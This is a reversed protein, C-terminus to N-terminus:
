IRNNRIRKSDVRKIERMITDAIKNADSESKVNVQLNYNYVSGERYTGRNIKELKEAGFDRVAPRRIVFEGPTLMAPITDSGLSPFVPNPFQKMKNAVAGGMSRYPILGGMPRYTILGGNARNRKPKWDVWGAERKERTNLGKKKKPPPPAPPPPPPPPPPAPKKPPPPAAPVPLPKMDPKEKGYMELLGDIMGVAVAMDEMFKWSSTRALDIQNEIAEWQEKTKGLVELTKIEDELRLEALRVFEAAPRLREQEIRFVEDELGRIQDELEKRTFGSSSRLQDLEVKKRQELMERQSSVSDAQEQARMQQAAQAAAAIDGRSLAEALGIQAQQQRSIKENVGAIKDLAEFRKDYAENIGDEQREIEKLGAQYDEITYQIKAIEREAADIVDKEGSIEANLKIELAQEEAAFKEMVKGMGESVIDARGEITMAKLELELKAEKEANNLAIALERPDITPDLFLQAINDDSMILDLQAQTYRQGEANLKKLLASRQKFQRNMEVVAEKASKKRQADQNQKEVKESLYAAYEAAQVLEKIKDTNTETAIAAALAADGALSYAVEFSAGANQLKRIASLQSEINAIEQKQDEVMTLKTIEIDLKAQNEANKLAEELAKPAINPELFLSMLDQNGLIARIQAATYRGAERQLKKLADATEKVRRNMEEVSERIRTRRQEEKDMEEMEDTLKKLEMAEQALERIKATNTEAAIAAALATDQVLKYATQYDAGAARLKKIATIQDRVGNSLSRQNDIAKSITAQNFAEQVAKGADTMGTINGAIDFNFLENKRRDWEDPDMGLFKEILPETVGVGRLQNSLSNITKSGSKSFAQLAALSDEWGVTVNQQIDIYDRIDRVIPDLISASPGGGGGSTDTEGGEDGGEFNPTPQGVVKQSVDNIYAAVAQNVTVRDEMLGKAWSSNKSLWAQFEQTDLTDQVTLITQVYLFKRLPDLSDFYEQNNQFAELGDGELIETKIVQNFDLGGGESKAQLETLEDIKVKFEDFAEPNELYFDIVIPRLEPIDYRSIEDFLELAKEAGAFDGSEIADSISKSLKEGIDARAAEDEIKSLISLFRQGAGQGMQRDIESFSNIIRNNNDVIKQAIDDDTLNEYFGPLKSQRSAEKKRFASIQDEKINEPDVTFTNLLNEVQRFDFTGTEIGQLFTIKVPIDLDSKKIIEIQNRLSAFEDGDFKNKLSEAMQDVTGDFFHAFERLGKANDSYVRELELESMDEINGLDVEAIDQYTELVERLADIRELGTAKGAGRGQGRLGEIESMLDQTRQAEAIRDNLIQSNAASTALLQNREELAKNREEEAAAFAANAEEQKGVAALARGQEYLDDIRKQSAISQADLIEQVQGGLAILSGALAAQGEAGRFLEDFFGKFGGEKPTFIQAVTDQLDEAVSATSDEILRVYIKLPDTLLNEGDLGIIETVQGSLKIGYDLDGIARGLEVAVGAAQEPTLIGSAVATTLQAALKDMTKEQGIEEFGKKVTEVYEKGPDSQIFQQGFESMGVAVGRRGAQRRESMIETATAKGAFEAFVGLAKTGAGLGESLERAATTIEKLRKNYMFYLAVAGGVVAVLAAVGLPLALLVPLLATLGGLLPVFKQATEAVNFGLVEMDQPAQTAIGAVMTATGLVRLSQSARQQRKQARDAKKIVKDYEKETVLKGNPLVRMNEPTGGDTGDAIDISGGDSGGGSARTQGELNDASNAADLAADSLERLEKSARKAAEASEFIDNSLVSFEDKLGQSKGTATARMTGTSEDYTALRQDFVFQNRRQFAQDEAIRADIVAQPPRRAASEAQRQAEQALFEPDQDPDYVVNGQSDLLKTGAARALPTAVKTLVREGAKKVVRGVVGGVRSMRSGSSTEPVPPAPMGPPRPPELNSSGRSPPRPPLAGGGAKSEEFGDALADGAGKGLKFMRRSPSNSDLAQATSDVLASGGGEGLAAMESEIKPAVSRIREMTQDEPVKVSLPDTGVPVAVGGQKLKLLQQLEAQQQVSSAQDRLRPSTDIGMRRAADQDLKVSPQTHAFEMAQTRGDASVIATSALDPDLGRQALERKLNTRAVKSTSDPTSPREDRQKGAQVVGDKERLGQRPYAVTTLQEPKPDLVAAGSDALREAEEASVRGAKVLRDLNQLYDQYARKSAEAFGETEKAHRQLAEGAYDVAEQGGPSVAQEYPVGAQRSVDSKIASAASIPAVPSTALWQMNMPEAAGRQPGMMAARSLLTYTGPGGIIESQPITTPQKKPKPTGFAFGPIKDELLARIFGSYKGAQKAPIVAEGPSLMAPIVDGAGKPGPVSLIGDAYKKPPMFPNYRSGANNAPPTVVVDPRINVAAFGRASVAARQYAGSLIDLATAESTFAQYLRQHDQSLSAAIASSELMQQSQYGMSSGLLNSSGSLMSLFQFIKQIGKGFNAVGNAILGIGMLVTPAIVGMVAILGTVFKKTGESLNNFSKLIGTVFEIIPTVLKIFEAGVPALSARLQEMQKQLKFMPSEEVRKLEREAIIGLEETNAQTLELVKNAQSGDKTINQFLTSMRAFQFKGFLAEISRARSLPDLKDLERALTMITGKLNGANSEVIGLVNIGFGSLTNQANRSPAILRGLSSKLANGAQSANIGGERMATLFFALDEIDGGLQQVVSGALPVATNFDEIALITQNEAANLFNIKSELDEIAVGFANTLSITTDLADMQDMGGLVSLRSAQRVQAELADGVNGMQAVKAALEITKEVAIGYKTFEDALRRVNELAKETDASTTFMDGYVRRFKVVQEEIKQFERVAITGMITLPVTFGVMLQRGAWQTNKGFNLLNTTGQKLLQNFIQQKQATMMVQTGLKNMDLTLPRVAIGRMAGNADRGLKIYQTQLTKVRERAVKDITAFESSFLKGFTKTGAGAFRFYEGMSLKNKELANTFSDTTSSLNAFSAAFKGSANISNVLNQSLQGVQAQASAGGKSMASYTSSLQAQLAKLTGIARTADVSININAEADAM